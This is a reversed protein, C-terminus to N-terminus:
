YMLKIRLKVDFLPTAKMYLIRVIVTIYNPKFKIGYVVPQSLIDPKVMSVTFTRWFKHPIICRCDWDARYVVWHQKLTPGRHDVSARCEIFM